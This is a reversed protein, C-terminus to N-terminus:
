TLAKNLNHINYLHIFKHLDFNWKAGHLSHYELEKIPYSINDIKLCKFINLKTDFDIIRKNNYLELADAAKDLMIKLDNYYKPFGIPLKDLGGYLSCFIQWDHAGYYAHFNIPFLNKVYDWNSISQPNYIESKEYVFNTIEHVIQKRTKGFKNILEKLRSYKFEKNFGYPLMNDVFFRIKELETSHNDLIDFYEQKIDNKDERYDKYELCEWIIKLINNRIFYNRLPYPSNTGTIDYQDWIWKLDIDKNIAYYSDGNECIIGISIFDVLYHQKNFGYSPLWWIPKRFGESYETDLYFNM